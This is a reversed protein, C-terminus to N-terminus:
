GASAARFEKGFTPLSRHVPPPRRTGTWDLLRKQKRNKRKKMRKWGNVVKLVCV